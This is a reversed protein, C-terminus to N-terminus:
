MALTTPASSRTKKSQYYMLYSLIAGLLAAISAFLFAERYCNIGVCYISNPLAHSEYSLGAISNFLASSIAPGVTYWSWFLGFEEAGFLESVLTPLISWIMGYASGVLISAIFVTWISSNLGFACFLHALSMLVLAFVYFVIRNIKTYDTLGMSIRGLGNFVSLVSVCELTLDHREVGGNLSKILNGVNNIFMLGGGAGLILAIFSLWFSSKKALSL